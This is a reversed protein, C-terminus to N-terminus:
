RVFSGIWKWASGGLIMVVRAAGIAALAVGVATFATLIDATDFTM